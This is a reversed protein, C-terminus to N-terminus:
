ITLREILIRLNGISGESGRFYSRAIIRLFSDLNSEFYRDSVSMITKQFPGGNLIKKSVINLENTLIKQDCRQSLMIFAKYADYGSDIYIIYELVYESLSSRIEKIIREKKANLM